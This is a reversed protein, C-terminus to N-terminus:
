KKVASIYDLNNYWLEINTDILISPKGNIIADLNEVCKKIFGVIENKM